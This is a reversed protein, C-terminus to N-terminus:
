RAQMKWSDQFRVRRKTIKIGATEAAQMMEAYLRGETAATATSYAAKAKQYKRNQM